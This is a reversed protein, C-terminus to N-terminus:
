RSITRSSAHFMRWPPPVRSAPMTAARAGGETRARRMVSTLFQAAQERFERLWAERAAVKIQRQVNARAMLVAAISGVASVLALVLALVSLILPTGSSAATM